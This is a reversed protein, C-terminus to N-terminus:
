AHAFSRTISLVAAKSAAYVALEVTTARRGAISSVNVVAGGSPLRACLAQCVFFLAKANVDFIADWDAEEVQELPRARLRGAASVLHTAHLAAANLRARGELTTVDCEVTRCGDLEALRVNDRDAAIVQTGERVLREALARGIGSSAGTVVVTADRLPIAAM